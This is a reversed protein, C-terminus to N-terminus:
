SDAGFEHEYVSHVYATYRSLAAISKRRLQEYEADITLAVSIQPVSTASAVICADELGSGRVGLENTIVVVGQALADILKTKVGGIGTSFNLFFKSRKYLEALERHAVNFKVNCFPFAQLEKLVEAQRAGAKCRGCILAIRVPIGSSVLFQLASKAGKLNEELDLNGVYIFDIEREVLQKDGNAVGEVNAVVPLVVGPRVDARSLREEDQRSIYYIRSLM